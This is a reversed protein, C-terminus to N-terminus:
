PFKTYGAVTRAFFGTNFFSAIASGPGDNQSVFLRRGKLIAIQDIVGPGLTIRTDRL